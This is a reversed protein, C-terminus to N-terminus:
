RACEGDYRGQAFLTRAERIYNRPYVHLEAPEGWQRRAYAAARRLAEPKSPTGVLFSEVRFRAATEPADYFATCYTYNRGTVDRDTM